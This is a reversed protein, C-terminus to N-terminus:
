GREVDRLHRIFFKDENYIVEIIEIRMTCYSQSALGRVYWSPKGNGTSCHQRGAQKVLRGSQQVYGKARIYVWACRKLHMMKERDVAQCPSGYKFSSRTKVEIFCLAGGESAVIDIEGYRCRFNVDHIIYGKKDLYEM